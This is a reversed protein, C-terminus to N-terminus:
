QQKLSELDRLAKDMKGREEVIFPFLTWEARFVLFIYFRVINYTASWLYVSLCIFLYVVEEFVM